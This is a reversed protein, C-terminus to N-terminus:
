QARAGTFSLDLRETRGDRGFVLSRQEIRIVSWGLFDDGERLRVARQAGGQLVLAVKESDTMLVGALTADLEVPAAPAAVPPRRSPTFLPRDLAAVLAELPPQAAPTLDVPAIRDAAPESVPPIIPLRPEDRPLITSAFVASAGMLAVLVMASRVKRTM